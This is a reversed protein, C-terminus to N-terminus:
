TPAGSAARGCVQCTGDPGIVGICSGDPCLTREAWEGPSGPPSSASAALDPADRADEDDEEGEEGGEDDEDEGDEDEGFADEDDAEDDNEDDDEPPDLLGRTREDGWNPAARGCVKCTGDPGIVGICGGDSCLQRQDWEGVAM